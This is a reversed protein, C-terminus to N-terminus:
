YSIFHCSSIRKELNNEFYIQFYIMYQFYLSLCRIYETKNDLYQVTIDSYEAESDLINFYTLIFIESIVASYKSIEISYPIHSPQWMTSYRSISGSYGNKKMCRVETYVVQNEM